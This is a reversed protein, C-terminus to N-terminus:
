RAAAGALARAAAETLVSDAAPQRLYAALDRSIREAPNGRMVAAVGLCRQALEIVDLAMREVALRALGVYAVADDGADAAEAQPAASALWLRATETAILAQGLRAQQHPDGARGRAALQQAIQETLAEIGGLTVASTRWAGCSLDPERGYDGAQGFVRGQADDFRVQGTTAARMGALGGPLASVSCRSTVDAYVLRTDGLRDTATVVARTAHGAASCFQKHGTLRGGLVVLGGAPPDTVWLGILRGAAADEAAAQQMTPDGYRAVLRLANVHAEVVRGLALNGRGLLRFMELAAGAKAPDTGLGTSGLLGAERLADMDEVPFAAAADLEAARRQQAPALAELQALLAATSDM